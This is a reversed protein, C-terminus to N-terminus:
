TDSENNVKVIIILFLMVWYFLAIGTWIDM